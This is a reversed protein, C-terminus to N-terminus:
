NLPQINTIKLVPCDRGPRLDQQFTFIVITLLQRRIHTSLELSKNCRLYTGTPKNRNMDSYNSLADVRSEM